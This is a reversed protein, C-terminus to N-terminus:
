LPLQKHKNNMRNSLGSAGRAEDGLRPGRCVEHTQPTSKRRIAENMEQEDNFNLGSPECYLVYSWPMLFSARALDTTVADYETIGLLAALRQQAQPISEGVRREGIVRLGHGSPTIAVFHIGPDNNEVIVKNEVINRQSNPKELRESHQQSRRPGRHAEHAFPTSQM